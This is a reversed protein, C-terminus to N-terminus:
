FENLIFVEKHLWARREDENQSESQDQRGQSAFFVPVERL